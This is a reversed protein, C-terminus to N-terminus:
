RESQSEEQLWAASWVNVDLDVRANGDIGDTNNDAESKAFYRLLTLM